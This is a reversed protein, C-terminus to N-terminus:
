DQKQTLEGWVNTDTSRVPILEFLEIRGEEIASPRFWYTHFRMAIGKPYTVQLTRDDQWKLDVNTCDLMEVVAEDPDMDVVDSEADLDVLYLYRDCAGAAGGGSNEIVVATVESNPSPLRAVIDTDLSCGVFTLASLLLFGCGALGARCNDTQDTQATISTDIERYASGTPRFALSNM